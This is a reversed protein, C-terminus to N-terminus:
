GCHGYTIHLTVMTGIEATLRAFAPWALGPVVHTLEAIACGYSPLVIASDQLQLTALNDPLPDAVSRASLTYAYVRAGPCLEVSKPGNDGGRNDLTVTLGRIHDADRSM